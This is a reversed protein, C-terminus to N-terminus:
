IKISKIENDLLEKLEACKEYEEYYAFHEIHNSIIEETIEDSPDFSIPLIRGQRFYKRLEINFDIKGTLILYGNEMSEIAFQQALVEDM